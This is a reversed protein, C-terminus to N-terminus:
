KLWQDITREDDKLSMSLKKSSRAHEPYSTQRLRSVPLLPIDVEM